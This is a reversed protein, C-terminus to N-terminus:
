DPLVLRGDPTFGFNPVWVVEWAHHDPDAFYGSYGGFSTQHPRKLETAGSELAQAYARDVDERKACNWALTSGRFAPPHPHEPVQADEALKDWPFLGIVVGGADFFAVEDGTARVKRTFGLAEYFRVSRHFDAVGLTVVSLRPTLTM